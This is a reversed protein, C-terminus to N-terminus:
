EFSDMRSIWKQFGTIKRPRTIFWDILAAQKPGMASRMKPMSALPAASNVSPMNTAMRVENVIPAQGAIALYPSTKKVLVVQSGTLSSNPPSTITYPVSIVESIAKSIATGTLKPMATNKVSSDGTQSLRGKPVAM